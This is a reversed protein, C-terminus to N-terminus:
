LEVAVINHFPTTARVVSKDKINTRQIDFSIKCSPSDPYEGKGTLFTANCVPRLILKTSSGHLSLESWSQLVIVCKRSPLAFRLALSDAALPVENWNGDGFCQLSFTTNTSEHSIDVPVILTLGISLVTNPSCPVTVGDPTKTATGVDGSVGFFRLLLAAVPPSKEAVERAILSVYYSPPDEALTLQSILAESPNLLHQLPAEIPLADRPPHTSLHPFVFRSRYSPSAARVDSFRFSTKQCSGRRLARLQKTLATQGRGERTNDVCSSASVLRIKMDQCFSSADMFSFLCLVKETLPMADSQQHAVRPAVLTAVHLIFNCFELRCLLDAHTSEGCRPISPASYFPQRMANLYCLRMEPGSLFLPYVGCSRLLGQLSSLCVGKPPGTTDRQLRQSELRSFIRCLSDSNAELVGLVSLCSSAESNPDSSRAFFEEANACLTSIATHKSALKGIAVGFTEMNLKPWSHDSSTGVSTAVAFFVSEIQHCSVAISCATACRWWGFFTMDCRAGRSVRYVDVLGLKRSPAHNPNRHALTGSDALRSDALRSHTQSASRTRPPPQASAPRLPPTSCRQEDNKVKAACQQEGEHLPVRLLRVTGRKRDCLILADYTLSSSLVAVSSISRLNVHTDTCVTSVMGGSLRRLRDSRDLFYCCQNAGVCITRPGLCRCHIAPGEVSQGFSSGVLVSVSFPEVQVVSITHSGADACLLRASDIAAFCTVRSLLPNRCTAVMASRVDVVRLTGSGADSIFLKDAGVSELAAIATTDSGANGKSRDRCLPNCVALIACPTDFQATCLPGDTTGRLGGCIRGVVNLTLPSATVAVLWIAHAAADAVIVYHASLQPVQAVTSVACPSRLEAVQVGRLVVKSEANMLTFGRIGCVVVVVSGAVCAHM